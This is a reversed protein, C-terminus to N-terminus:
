GNSANYCNTWTPDCTVIPEPTLGPTPAPAASGPLVAGCLPSLAHTDCFWKPPATKPAPSPNWDVPAGPPWCTGDLFCPPPSDLVVPPPTFQAVNSVGAPPPTATKPLHQCRDLIGATTENYFAPQYQAARRGGELKFEDRIGPDGNDPTIGDDHGSGGYLNFNCWIAPATQFNDYSIDVRANVWRLTKQGFGGLFRHTSDIRYVFARFTPRGHVTFGSPMVGASLDLNREAHANAINIKVVTNGGYLDPSKLSDNNFSVPLGVPQQGVASAILKAYPNRAGEIVQNAQLTTADFKAIDPLADYQAAATVAGTTRDRVGRVSVHGKPDKDYDYRQLTKAAADYYYAWFVDRGDDARAYFDVEHNAGDIENPKNFVDNAPVFVAFANAADNRLASDENAIALAGRRTTAAADAAHGFQSFLALAVLGFVVFLGLAFILEITTM